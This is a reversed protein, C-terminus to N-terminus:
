CPRTDGFQKLMARLAQGRHSVGMKQESNAEGFTCGFDDYFFHPDYGFGNPGRAEDIIRGRVEGRYIGLCRGAQAVAIVCIFRATRDKVNQLKEILRRNNDADSANEGAYRASYVGPEGQLADVALGSDDAFVPADVFRSYYVAKLIANEEFTSGSEEPAEINKLDPVSEIEIGHERAAHGFERLKGPNTTACYLKM